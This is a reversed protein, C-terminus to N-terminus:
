RRFSGAASPVGGRWGDATVRRTLDIVPGPEVLEALTAGTFALLDERHVKLATGGDGTPTVLVEAGGLARDAVTVVGEPLCFPPVLSPHFETLASVRAADPRRLRRVGAARAVASTAPARDAPVLAAVLRANGALETEYLRVALCASAPLGLVDPLESADDIRRRLHVIEHAVGAELLAQTVDIPGRL